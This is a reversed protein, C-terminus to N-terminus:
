LITLFYPSSSGPIIGSTGVPAITLSSPFSWFASCYPFPLRLEQSWACQRLASGHWWSPHGQCGCFYIVSRPGGSCQWLFVLAETDQNALPILLAVETESRDELYLMWIDAKAFAPGCISDSSAQSIPAKTRQRRAHGHIERHMM